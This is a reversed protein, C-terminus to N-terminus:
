GRSVEIGYAKAVEAAHKGEPSSVVSYTEEGVLTDAAALVKMGCCESCCEAVVCPDRYRVTAIRGCECKPAAAVTARAMEEMTKAADVGEEMKGTRAVVENEYTDFDM